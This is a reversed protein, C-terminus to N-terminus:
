KRVAWAQYAAIAHELRQVPLGGEPLPAYVATACAHRQVPRGAEGQPISAPANSLWIYDDIAKQMRKTCEPTIVSVMAYFVVIMGVKVHALVARSYITSSLGRVHRLARMVGDELPANQHFPDLRKGLAV